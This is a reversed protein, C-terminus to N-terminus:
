LVQETDALHVLAISTARATGSSRERSPLTVVLSSAQVAPRPPPPGDPAPRESRPQEATSALASGAPGVLLVSAGLATAGVRAWTKM